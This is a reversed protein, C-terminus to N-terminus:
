ILLLLKEKMIEKSCKKMLPAFAFLIMVNLTMIQRLSTAHGVLSKLNRSFQTKSAVVLFVVRVIQTGM